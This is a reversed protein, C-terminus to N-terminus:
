IIGNIFKFFSKRLVVFSVTGIDNEVQEFVPKHTKLSSSLPKLSQIDYNSLCQLNCIKHLDHLLKFPLVHSYIYPCNLLLTKYKRLLIYSHCNCTILPDFVAHYYILEFVLHHLLNLPM